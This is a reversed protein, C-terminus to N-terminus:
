ADVRPAGKNKESVLYAIWSECSEGTHVPKFVGNGRGNADTGEWYVHTSKFGVEALLEKLEQIGWLRWDYTFVDEFTQGALKFNISFQAQHTVPDYNKQNWQYSFPGVRKKDLSPGQCLKGGFVDCIFLGDDKLGLYAKKFYSKLDQRTKFLFYSFNLAVTIDSKAPHAKLVNRNFISVRKKQALSLKVQNHTMGYAIPEPDLDFGVSQYSSNLKVWECCIMHTGCFDEKLLLPKKNRLKKYAKEFFRVDSEPSQVSKQYLDYPDFPLEKDVYNLNDGEIRRYKKFLLKPQKTFKMLM